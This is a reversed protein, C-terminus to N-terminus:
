FAAMELGNSSCRQFKSVFHCTFLQDYVFLQDYLQWLQIGKIKLSAAAWAEIGQPRAVGSVAKCVNKPNGEHGATPRHGDEVGKSV